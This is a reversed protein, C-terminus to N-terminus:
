RSAAFSSAGRGGFAGAAVGSAVGASIRSAVGSDAGAAAGLLPAAARHLPVSEVGEVRPRASVGCLKKSAPQSLAHVSTSHTCATPM